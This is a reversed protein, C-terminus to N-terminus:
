EQSKQAMRFLAFAIVACLAVTVSVGAILHQLSIGQQVLWGISGASVFSGLRGMSNASGAGLSRVATPYIMVIVANLVVIPGSILFGAAFICAAYWPESSPTAVILPMVAGAAFAIWIVLLPKIRSILLVCSIAGILGGSQFLSATKSAAAVSVGQAKLLTPLWSAIVYFSGLVLFMLAWVLVTTMRLDPAFLTRLSGAQARNSTRPFVANVALQLGLKELAKGIAAQPRGAELLYLPSEPVLWLIAPICLLPAIGGIAFMGRWGLSEILHGTLIGALASGFLFGCFVGSLAPARRHTPLIEGLLASLAPMAMGIGIGTALRWAIIETLSGSFAAGLSALGFATTGLLVVPRRGHKDSLPGGLMYGLMLGLMGASIAASMQASTAGFQASIQPAVFGIIAADFGEIAVILFFIAVVLSRRGHSAPSNILAQLDVVNASPTRETSSTNM